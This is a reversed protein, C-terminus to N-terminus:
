AQVGPYVETEGHGVELEMLVGLETDESGPAPWVETAENPRPLLGLFSRENPGHPAWAEAANHLSLVAPRVEGDRRARREPGIRRLDEINTVIAM